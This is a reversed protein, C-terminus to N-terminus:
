FIPKEGDALMKMNLLRQTYTINDQTDLMKMNFLRRTYLTRQTQRINEHQVIEKYLIIINDQTNTDLMKMNFLRPVYLIMRHTQTDAIKLSSFKFHSPM